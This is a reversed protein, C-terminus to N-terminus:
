IQFFIIQGKMPSFAGVPVTIETGEQNEFKSIDKVTITMLDKRVEGNPMAVDGLIQIKPKSDSHESKVTKFTNILIGSLQIMSM